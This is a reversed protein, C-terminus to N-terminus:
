VLRYVYRGKRECVCEVNHSGHQVKRLDRLRATISSESAIIGKDALLKQFDYSARWQHDAMIQLIANMTTAKATAPEFNIAIQHM